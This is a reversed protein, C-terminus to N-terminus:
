IYYPIGRAGQRVDEGSSKKSWSNKNGSIVQSFRVETAEWIEQKRSQPEEATTVYSMSAFTFVKFYRPILEESLLLGQGTPSPCWHLFAGKKQLMPYMGCPEKPDWGSPVWISVTHGAAYCPSSQSDKRNWEEKRPVLKRFPVM